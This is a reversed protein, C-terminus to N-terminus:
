RGSTVKTPFRKERWDAVIMHRRFLQIGIVHPLCVAWVQACDRDMRGAISRVLMVFVVEDVCQRRKSAARVSPIREQLLHEALVSSSFLTAKDMFDKLLELVFRTADNKRRFQYCLAEFALSHVPNRPLDNTTQVEMVEFFNKRLPQRVAKFYHGGIAWWGFLKEDTEGVIWGM